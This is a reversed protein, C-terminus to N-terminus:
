FSEYDAEVLDRDFLRSTVFARQQESASMSKSAVIAKDGRGDVAGM